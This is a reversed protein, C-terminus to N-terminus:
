KSLGLAKGHEGSLLGKVFDVIMEFLKRILEKVMEVLDTKTKDDLQLQGDDGAMKIEGKMAKDLMNSVSENLASPKGDKDVNQRMDYAKSAADQAHIAPAFALLAALVLLRYTM